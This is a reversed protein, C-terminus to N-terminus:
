PKVVQFSDVDVSCGSPCSHDPNQYIGARLHSRISQGPAWPSPFDCYTGGPVRAAEARLTAVHFTPSVEHADGFDGDGNLDVYVKIRGLTSNQPRRPSTLLRGELASPMEM